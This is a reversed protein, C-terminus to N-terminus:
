DRRHEPAADLAERIVQYALRADYGKRALFGALRRTQVERDLGHLSRLRREVLARAREREGEPDVDELAAEVLEDPVGKRRLEHGLARAALGKTEQRSRVLMEAYAADDVLGVEAMRDLVAAAVDEDCGRQRLKDELQRRTRPGHSLQRLVIQRAVDYPDPEADDRVQEPVGGAAASQEAAALLQRARDLRPDTM